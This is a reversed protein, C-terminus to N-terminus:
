YKAGVVGGGDGHVQKTEVGALPVPVELRHRAVVVGNLHRSQPVDREGQVLEAISGAAVRGVAVEGAHAGLDIHGVLDDVLQSASRVRRSVMRPRRKGAHQQGAVVHPTQHGLDLGVREGVDIAQDLDRPGVLAM